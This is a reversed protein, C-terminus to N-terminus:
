RATAAPAAITERPVEGRSQQRVAGQRRATPQLVLSGTHSLSLPLNTLSLM